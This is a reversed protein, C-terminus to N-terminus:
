FDRKQMAPQQRGDAMFTPDADWAAWWAAVSVRKPAPSIFIGDNLKTIMLDDDELQFEKPIRVAASGGNQFVKARRSNQIYSDPRAPESKRKTAM